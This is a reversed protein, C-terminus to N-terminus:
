HIKLMKEVIRGLKWYVKKSFNPNLTKNIALLGCKHYTKWFYNYKNPMIASKEIAPNNALGDEYTVESVLIPLSHLNNAGWVTNVLVLSVGKDTYLEPYTNEIGWFDALTLDSHSKGCKAPCSYCAPRLYLDRLFGLMYINDYYPEFLVEKEESKNFTSQFYPKKDGNCVEAQVSFGFKKWGLRKDRFNIRTIAPKGGSLEYQFATNNKAAILRTVSDIYTRWIGPSPVGHCVFDVKLLQSGYDKKLYRGLGAIQCPTGSFLVRRGCNLFEKAKKYSEGVKSQVYKSTQFDGIGETVETYDHIVMWNKDFRAGFVVGGDDIVAKALAYFVGGSSSQSLVFNNNNIAAYVNIPKEESSQNIVPCVKECLGCDICQKLDVSPYSFGQDDEVMTICQKPCIQVCADCGVCDKKRKINIM